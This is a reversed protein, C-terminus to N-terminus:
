SCVAARFFIVANKVNEGDFNLINFKHAREEMAEHSDPNSVVMHKTISLYMTILDQENKDLEKMDEAVKSKPDNDISKMCLGLVM